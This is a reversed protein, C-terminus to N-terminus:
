LGDGGDSFQGRVFGDLSFDQVFVGLLQKPDDALSDTPGDLSSPIAFTRPRSTASFLMGHQRPPAVAELRFSASKQGEQGGQTKAGRAGKRQIREYDRRWRGTLAGLSSSFAFTCLRSTASFLTGTESLSATAGIQVISVEPRNTRRADEREQAMANFKKGLPAPM